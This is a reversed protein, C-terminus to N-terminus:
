INQRHVRHHKFYKREMEKNYMVMLTRLYANDDVSSNSMIDDM